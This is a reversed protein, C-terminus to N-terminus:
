PNRKSITLSLIGSVIRFLPSIMSKIKSVLAFLSLYDGFTNNCCFFSNL